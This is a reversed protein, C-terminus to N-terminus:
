PTESQEEQTRQVFDVTVVSGIDVTTNPLPDQSVVVTQAGELDSGVIKINLGANVILKNAESASKGIVNPVTATTNAESEDTYLIVTGGIPLKSKDEPIQKVIEPGKGIIETNLGRNRLQIQAEHPKEGVLKPVVVEGEEIEELQEKTYEPELGLYPLIDELVAAVVPVAITSSQADGVEPEDLAILIAFEPDDAPAFAFFSLVYEIVQEGNVYNDLKEGTGTKGGIRYGAIRSNRGSGEDESVVQEAMERVLASTEASIVQRKVVPEYSEVINKDEDLIQKVVYPQVLYGGNITAAAATMMQIPTIKFTQGFASSSLEAIGMKEETHYLSGAEGPLDIGTIDTLGFADFYKSFNSVGLNQGIQMFAPNCSHMVAQAFTQQGHGAHKWCHIRRGAVIQYGPCFFGSHETSTGTDLAAAATVLKFVSGPEYPDSVVKNRWMQNQEYNLQEKYEDGTLGSLRELAEPDTIEFPSNPNFDPKTAMALIEGTNVNMVIGIARKHVSHEAVAIEMHKELFHQITEDITLVISNGNEGEYLKQYQFPMDGSTGNRASVLRGESGSLVKNYYSEIGYAGQNMDNVFGLVTSALNNYPYYRKTTEVLSICKIKHTKIFETVENYKEKDIKKKLVEYYSNVKKAKEVVTEPEIDLIGALSTVTTMKGDVKKRGYALLDVQAAATEDDSSLNGPEFIVNWVTASQALTKMNRDYISGRHPAIEIDKLQQTIAMTQYKEGEVIQIKFLNACLLWSCVICLLLALLRIKGQPRRMSRIIKKLLPIKGNPAKAM